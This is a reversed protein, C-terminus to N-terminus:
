ELPGNTVIMSSLMGEFHEGFITEKIMRDKSKPIMLDVIQYKDKNIHFM